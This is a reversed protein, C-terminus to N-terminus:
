GGRGGAARARAGSAGGSRAQRNAGRKLASEYATNKTPKRTRGINTNM